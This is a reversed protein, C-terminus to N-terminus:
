ELSRDKPSLYIMDLKNFIELESDCYFLKKTKIDFLGYESLKYGLKKAKIRMLQNLKYSGTFYLIAPYLSEYPILRIDIRRIPKLKYKSFGMYKTTINKYTIDDIIFKNDKLYNVYEQLLSSNNVDELTILDSTCILLDIDSSYPLERRYSGCIIIYIDSNYKNTLIRLYNLISTIESKPIRGEFKGYYKIGLKIKENTKIKGQKIKTILDDTSKVNYKNIFDIAVKPGIGIVKMLDDIISQKDIQNKYKIDYTKLEELNKTKLIEDIKNITGKGIGPINKLNDSSIIKTPFNSIIQLSNKLHKIRFNNIMIEKSSTLYQNDIKIYKILKDFLSVILKNNKNIIKINDNM